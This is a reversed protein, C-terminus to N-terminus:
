KDRMDSRRGGRRRRTTSAMMLGSTSASLSGGARVRVRRGFRKRTKRTMRVRDTWRQMRGDMRERSWDRRRRGHADLKTGEVFYALGGGEDDAREDAGTLADLGRAVTSIHLDRASEDELRTLRTSTRPALPSTAVAQIDWENVPRKLTTLRLATKFTQGAVSVTEVKGFEAGGQYALKATADDGLVPVGGPPLSKAPSSASSPPASQACAPLALAAALCLSAALSVIKLSHKM